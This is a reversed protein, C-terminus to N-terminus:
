LACVFQIMDRTGPKCFHLKERPPKLTRFSSSPLFGPFCVANEKEGRREKYLYEAHVNGMSPIKCDWNYLTQSSQM